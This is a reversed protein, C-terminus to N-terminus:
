SSATGDLMSSLADACNEGDVAASVIGGAYGAGEGCPFLGSLTPHQFSRPDRLIRVPSSTRTEVGILLAQNTLFGRYRRGFFGLGRQLRATFFSPLWRDLRSPTLGASYSSAALTWSRRNNVFDDMRQAPAAQTEGGELWARRELAAQLATMSLCSQWWALGQSAFWERDSQGLNNEVFSHLDPNSLDEVHTEVVMGSNSWRGNRGSPSMGNVVLQERGSSTSVVSGGPCMCFSYVGREDEQSVMRYEAAPLYAGRGEDSHYMIRDILRAPHELRLGIALDKSELRVRQTYLFRFVDRAAGGTALIVPGLIERGDSTRVGLVRGIKEDIILSDVRTGFIVEGGCGTITQRLREVVQPLRDTGIHPHADVLIGPDAGHQCLVRLIKGVDGRKTSRTFLKGDSFAGAGGEGFSLNSEPDVVGSRSSLAVDKRREHVNKGREAIIPRIGKEILRLAAFLGAPGAGVIVAQRCGTVNPYVVREFSAPEPEEDVYVRVRLDIMVGPSRADIGRRLVQVGRVGEIGLARTAAKALLEGSCAVRPEVRLEIEHKM